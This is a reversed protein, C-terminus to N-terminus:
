PEAFLADLEVVLGDLVTSAARGGPGITTAGTASRIEVTRSGPDVLWVEPVGRRLYGRAKAGRDRHATSPSLIEVVLLPL